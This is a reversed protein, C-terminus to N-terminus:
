AVPTVKRWRRFAGAGGLGVLCTGLLVLSAPEPTPSFGPGAFIGGGQLNVNGATFGSANSVRVILIDSFQGSHPMNAGNFTFTVTDGVTTRNVSASDKNSAGSTFFGSV